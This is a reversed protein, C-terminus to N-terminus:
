GFKRGALMAGAGLAQGALSAMLNTPGMYASANNAGINAYGQGLNQGLQNYNAAINTGTGLAANGIGQAGGFGLQQGSQLMGLQAQRQQMFRAYANQGELSALEQSGRVTSGSLYGQGRAAQMRELAKRGEAMRAAYVPDSTIDSEAFNQMFSGYGPATPAGSLGMLSALRNTSELGFQQYPQYAANAQQQGQLLAQRAQEAQQAQALMAMQVGQNQANAASSFGM